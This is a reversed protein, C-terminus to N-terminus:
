RKKGIKNSVTGIKNGIKEVVAEGGIPEATSNKSQVDCCANEDNEESETPQAPTPQSQQSKDDTTESQVTVPVSKVPKKAIPICSAVCGIGGITLSQAKRSLKNKTEHLRSNSLSRKGRKINQSDPSNNNTDENPVMCLRCNKSRTVPGSTSNSDVTLAPTEPVGDSQVEKPPTEVIESNEPQTVVTTKCVARTLKARPMVRRVSARKTNEKASKMAM